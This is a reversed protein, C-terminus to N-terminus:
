VAWRYGRGGSGVTSSELYGGLSDALATLAAAATDFDTAELNLTGTYIIKQNQLVSNDQDEWEAYSDYGMAMDEAPAEATAAMDAAKPTGNSTSGGCATLTLIMTLALFCAFLKRKM